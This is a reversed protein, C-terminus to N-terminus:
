KQAIHYYALMKYYLKAALFATPKAYASDMLEVIDFAVVNCKEFVKKLLELTPYWQLGGPEPTGTSPAFAPDFADLDITIYVNGSVKELVDDIWRDNKAIEHAWFCQGEPVYQMEEADCSRIGVQVLNLKQSAEFVACAHNSTSGHFEPRLDTHADLQLVTLDPYKEGFARISGISVSHEGGFLTFLKGDHQMMEKTKEYVAQTMAEPSADEAVEGAMWVGELYPETGTEIDYLEMNESADLFLEPGKDAGKGWTSTGDYPVTVLMVKANELTANEEPIGAYTRM